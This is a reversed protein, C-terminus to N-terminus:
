EFEPRGVFHSGLGDREGERPPRTTFSVSFDIGAIEELLRKCLTTKGAGSPASVVFVTGRAGHARGPTARKMRPEAGARPDEGGRVQDAVRGPLDVSARGQLLHLDSSCVDSSWDCLSRTHRRRSSFFFFLM